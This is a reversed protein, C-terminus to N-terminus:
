KRESEKITTFLQAKETQFKKWSDKLPDIIFWRATFGFVIIIPVMFLYVSYPHEAYVGAGFFSSSAIFCKQWFEFKTWQWKVFTLIDKIM